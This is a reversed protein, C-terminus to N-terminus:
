ARHDGGFGAETERMIDLIDVRRETELDFHEVNKM